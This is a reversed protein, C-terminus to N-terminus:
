YICLSPIWLYPVPVISVQAGASDEGVAANWAHGAAPVEGAGHPLPGPHCLCLRLLRCCREAPWQLLSVACPIQAGAKLLAPGCCWCDAEQVQVVLMILGLVTRGLPFARLLFPLEKSWPSSPCVWVCRSSSITCVCIVGSFLVATHDTNVRLM